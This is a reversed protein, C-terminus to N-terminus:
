RRGGRGFSRAAGGFGRSYSRSGFTGRSQYRSGGYTGRSQYRSGGYSRDGWSPKPREKYWGGSSPNTYSPGGRSEHSRAWERARGLIGGVVGPRRAYGLDDRSRWQPRFENNRGYFTEGRRRARDYADYDAITVPGRSAHLLQSLILYQPLWQWVGGSWSGYANSQGPPAVYAYAPPQVVREAESDYKGAPKREVVMGVSREPDHLRAADVTEWREESKAQGNETSVIRFQERRGREDVDLLLKDRNVYLQAALTTLAATDTDFQKKLADLRDANAFLAPYDDPRVQQNATWTKEGEEQIKKLADVRAQLDDRKGPWDLMAKHAAATNSEVDFSAIAEHMARMAELRQPLERKYNLWREVDARIDTTDRVPTARQNDFETLKREVQEADTRRNAQALQQLSVLTAAATQMNAQDANLRDRWMPAKAAFLAPEDRVATQIFDRNREFAARDAEARASAAAVSQRLHRPLDDLGASAVVAMLVILIIAVIGLSRRNM